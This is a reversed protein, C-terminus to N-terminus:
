VIACKYGIPGGLRNMVRAIGRTARTVTVNLLETNTEICSTSVTLKMVM